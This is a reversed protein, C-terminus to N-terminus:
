KPPASEQIGFYSILRDHLTSPFEFIWKQGDIEVMGYRLRRPSRGGFRVDYTASKGGQNVQASIQLSADTFGYDAQKEAGHEVFSEAALLGLEQVGVEVELSNIIGQSGAALTWNDPGKRVLETVVGNQRITVRTTQEEAFNWIQRERLGIGSLPLQQFDALSVAYVSPEEPRRAFVTGNTTVAGFDIEAMVANSAGGSSNTRNQKLQYKWAPPALGYNTWESPPVIDKVAVPGNTPVVSLRALRGIFQRMLNTDAPFDYPATVHWVDNSVRHVTFNTGGLLDIEDPLWTYMGALTRDRFDIKEARWGAVLDARVLVVTSQDDRRAYLLDPENTPSSGFQLTLLHNTGHDFDLELQPPQLGYPELDAKPEDTKFRVVRLALLEDFLGKLKAINIRDHPLMYWTSNTSDSQLVFSKAGNTVTVRDLMRGQFNLFVTDRWDDLKRPIFELINTGIIDVGEAGVVHAYVQDGPSTLSGIKLALPHDDGQQILVITALPTEFGYDADVDRKGKLEEASIHNQVALDHLEKLLYDVAMSRAPYAIPRILQWTGNTTREARIEEGRLLIQVNTTIAPDFGSILRPPPPPNLDRHREYFYIFSFLGAALVVMFFTNRPNM